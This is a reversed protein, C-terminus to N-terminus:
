GGNIKKEEERKCEQLEHRTKVYHPWLLLLTLGRDRMTGREKQRKRKQIANTAQKKEQSSITTVPLLSLCFLFDLCLKKFLNRFPSSALMM